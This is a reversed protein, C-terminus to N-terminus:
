VTPGKILETLDFKNTFQKLAKKCSKDEWNINSNGMVCNDLMNVCNLFMILHNLYCVFPFFVQVLLRNENRMEAVRSDLSGAITKYIFWLLFPNKKEQQLSIFTSSTCLEKYKSQGEFKRIITDLFTNQPAM